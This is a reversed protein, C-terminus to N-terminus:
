PLHQPEAEDAEHEMGERCDRLGDFFHHYWELDKNAQRLRRRLDQCYAVLLFVAVVLTATFAFYWFIM